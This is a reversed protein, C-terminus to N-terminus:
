GRPRREGGARVFRPDRGHGRPRYRRRPGCGRPSPRYRQSAYVDLVPHEDRRHAVVREMTERVADTIFAAFFPSALDFFGELAGPEALLGRMAAQDAVCMITVDSASLAAALGGAV